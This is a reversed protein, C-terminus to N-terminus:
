RTVNKGENGESRELIPRVAGPAKEARNAPDARGVVADGDVRRESMDRIRGSGPIILFVLKSIKGQIRDGICGSGAAGGPSVRAPKSRRRARFKAFPV